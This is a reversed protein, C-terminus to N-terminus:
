ILARPLISPTNPIFSPLNPLLDQNADCLNNAIIDLIRGYKLFDLESLAQNLMTLGQNLLSAPDLNNLENLLDSQINEFRDLLKSVAPYDEFTLADNIASQLQDFALEPAQVIEQVGELQSNVLQLMNLLNRVPKFNNLSVQKKIENSLLTIADRPNLSNVVNLLDDFVVQGALDSIASLTDNAATKIADCALDHLRALKEAPTALSDIMQKLLEYRAQQIQDIVLRMQSFQLSGCLEQLKDLLQQIRELPDLDLLENLSFQLCKEKIEQVVQALSKSCPVLENFNMSLALDSISVLSIDGLGPLDINPKPIRLNSIVSGIQKLAESLGNGPTLNVCITQPAQINQLVSDLQNFNLESSKGFGLGIKPVGPLQLSQIPNTSLLDSLKQPITEVLNNLKFSLVENLKEIKQIKNDKLSELTLKKNDIINVPDLSPDPIDFCIHKTEKLIKGFTLPM